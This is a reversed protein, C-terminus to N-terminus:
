SIRLEFPLCSLRVGPAAVRPSASEAPRELGTDSGRRVVRESGLAGPAASLPRRARGTSRGQGEVGTGLPRHLVAREALVAGRPQRRLEQVRLCRRVRRRPRGVSRRQAASLPHRRRARACVTRTFGHAAGAPASRPLRGPASTPGMSQGRVVTIGADVALLHRRRGRQALVRLRQRGGGVAVSCDNVVPVNGEPPTEQYGNVAQGKSGVAVTTIQQTPPPDASASGTVWFMAAAVIPVVAIRSADM